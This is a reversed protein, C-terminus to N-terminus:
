DEIISSALPLSRAQELAWEKLGSQTQGSEVAKIWDEPVEFKRRTTYLPMLAKFGNAQEVVVLTGLEGSELADLMAATVLVHEGMVAAFFRNGGGMENTIPTEGQEFAQEIASEVTMSQIEELMYPGVQIEAGATCEIKFIGDDTPLLSAMAVDREYDAQFPGILKPEVDMEVHLVYFDKMPKADEEAAPTAKVIRDIVAVKEMLFKLDQSDVVALNESCGDTAASANLDNAAAIVGRLDKINLEIKM